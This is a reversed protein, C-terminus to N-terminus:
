ADILGLNAAFPGDFTGFENFQRYAEVFRDARPFCELLGDLDLNHHKGLHPRGDFEEVLLTCIKSLEPKAITDRIRATVHDKKADVVMPVEIMASPRGYSPSLYHSSAAAFRLGVPALFFYESDQIFDLTEKLADAADWVPVAVETSIAMPPPGPPEHADTYDPIRRLAIYNATKEYRNGTPFPKTFPKNDSEREIYKNKIRDAKKHHDDEPDIAGRFKNALCEWWYTRREPPWHNSVVKPKEKIEAEDHYRYMCTPNDEPEDGQMEGVNVLFQVHRHAAVTPPIEGDDSDLYANLLTKLEVTETSEKLWYSSRAKLTYGKVIGFCGYGAVVSHFLDDNQHLVMGHEHQRREFAGRDTIGDSPEIRRVQVVPEGANVRTVTALEVALVQEPLGPLEIGTGHTATNVAGAITQADFSGMNIVALGRDDLYERNLRKITTGGRVHLFEEDDGVGPPDSKVWDREDRVGEHQTLDVFLDEPQAARSHSHGSGVARIRKGEEVAHVLAAVLEDGDTPTVRTEGGEYDHIWNEWTADEEDPDDRHQVTPLAHVSLPDSPLNRAPAIERISTPSGLDGDAALSRFPIRTTPRLTWPSEGHTAM